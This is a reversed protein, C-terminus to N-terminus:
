MCGQTYINKGTSRWGVWGYLSVPHLQQQERHKHTHRHQDACGSTYVCTHPTCVHVQTHGTELVHEAQSSALSKWNSTSWQRKLMTTRVINLGSLLRSMWTCMRLKWIFNSHSSVGLTLTYWTWMEKRFNQTRKWKRKRRCGCPVKPFFFKRNVLDKRYHFNM